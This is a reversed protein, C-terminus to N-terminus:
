LCVSLSFAPKERLQAVLSFTLSPFCAVSSFVVHGKGTFLKPLTPPLELLNKRRHLKLSGCSHIELFLSAAYVPYFLNLATNCSARVGHCLPSSLSPSNWSCLCAAAAALLVCCFPPVAMCLPVAPKKTQNQKQLQQMECGHAPAPNTAWAQAATM